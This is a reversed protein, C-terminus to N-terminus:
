SVELVVVASERVVISLPTLQKNISFIGSSLSVVGGLVASEVVLEIPIPVSLSAQGVELYSEVAM